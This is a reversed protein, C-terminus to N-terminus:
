EDVDRKKDCKECFEYNQTFGEYKVWKHICNAQKEELTQTKKEDLYDGYTISPNNKPKGSISSGIGPYYLSFPSIQHASPIIIPCSNNFPENVDVTIENTIPNQTFIVDIEPIEEGPNLEQYDPNYFTFILQSTQYDYGCNLLETNSHMKSFLKGLVNVTLDGALLDQGISIKAVNRKM